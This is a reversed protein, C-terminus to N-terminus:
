IEIEDWIEEEKKSCSPFTDNPDNPDNSENINSPKQAFSVEGTDNPDSPTDNPTPIRRLCFRNVRTRPDKVRDKTEIGLQRLFTAGRAIKEWLKNPAKPWSPLRKTSESTLKELEALLETATGTWRDRNSMFQRIANGVPDADVADEVARGRNGTYAAMFGGPEWPLAREAATVWAVFDAMRPLTDFHVEKQYRLASSVADLLEALISPHANNFAATIEAERRRTTEPMCPLTVIIARDILDNRSTVASIGNLIQPRKAELITEDDNTYLTRTSIAGGTAVRCIADSLWPPLGSINDFVVVRNNRAAIMLDRENRPTTRVGGKSPDIIEKLMRSISTKGSGHEGLIVAVPYPGSGHFVGILWGVILKFSNPNGLNCIEKLEKLGPGQREPIPLPRLGPPRWFMVRSDKVVDWGSETVEVVVWDPRGLDLYIKGEHEALRVYVAREQGELTALADLTNVADQLGQSGPAKGKEKLFKHSLINRFGVSRVPHVEYHGKVQVRAYGKGDLIHFLDFDADQAMKVLTTAQTEKINESDESKGGNGEMWPKLSADGSIKERAQKWHYGSCSDHFCKYGLAGNADQTIAADNGTHSEDFLCHDLCFFTKTGSEKIRYPVGHHELYAGVRLLGHSARSEQKKPSEQEGFLDGLRAIAAPDAAQSM